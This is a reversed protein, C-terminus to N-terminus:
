VEQPFKSGSKRGFNLLFLDIWGSMRIKHPPHKQSNHANRMLRNKDVDRLADAVLANTLMENIM